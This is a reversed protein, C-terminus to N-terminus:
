RAFCRLLGFITLMLSALVLYHPSFPMDALSYATLFAAPFLLLL